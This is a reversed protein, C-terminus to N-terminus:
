IDLVRLLAFGDWGKSGVTQIATADIRSESALLENMQRVGIVRPDVSSVDVVAGGRIVNDVVILTGPRSLRLSARVYDPNRPKDADIFIFDYPETDSAIFRELTEVAKGEHLTVRDSLKANAINKRAVEVHKPDAELTDLRGGNPLARGLWRTSYAGLTGIELIRRAGALQDFLALLKGQNPAVNHETLGARQSAALTADLVPDSPVLADCLYADVDKWLGENM